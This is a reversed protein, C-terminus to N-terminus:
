LKPYKQMFENYCRLYKERQELTHMIRKGKGYPFIDESDEFYIGYEDSLKFKRAEFEAYQETYFLNPSIWLYELSPLGILHEIRHDEPETASIIIEKLNPLESIPELSDIKHITTDSFMTLLQMCELNKANELGSLSRFYQNVYVTVIKLNPTYFTNWFQSIRHRDFVVFELKSFRELVSADSVYGNVVLGKVDPNIRACIAQFEEQSRVRNLTVYEKLGFDSSYEDKGYYFGQNESLYECKGCMKNGDLIVDLWSYERESDVHIEVGSCHIRRRSELSCTGYFHALLYKDALSTREKM